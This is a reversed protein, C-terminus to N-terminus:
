MKLLTKIGLLKLSNEIVIGVAKTLSLRYESVKKDKTRQELIDHKNYFTNYKQALDYVYNCILNPSYSIASAEVAEPFHLLSRLINLEEENLSLASLSSDVTKQKETIQLSNATSPKKAKELVSQTRAYTYQLYPGSNGEKSISEKIDFKTDKLPSNKLFSYKVAGIGVSEAIEEKEAESLDKRDEVIKRIEAVVMDVLDVAGIIEGTRSAMKGSKLNVMGFGIHELKGKLEPMVKEIASFIVKFYENQESATTIILKDYPFEEYKLIELCVDKAEYTPTNRSTIFVRDHLGAKSGEYIVAGESESFVKGINNKVLEYGKQHVESEYYYRDFEIDLRKEFQKYYTKSWERTKTLIEQVEPVNNYIDQNLKDIEDKETGGKEYAASGHQYMLQLLKVKGELDEPVTPNEKLFAWLCKAVHPGIDGQYNARRIEYGTEELINSLSSGLIYSFLHGIHPLKHTNPQGFEFSLKKNKNVFLRGYDSGEELVGRLITTLADPKLHFNIFGPGAVDIKEVVELLEKDNNLKNVIEEALQRPNNYYSQKTGSLSPNVIVNGKDEVRGSEQGALGAPPDKVGAFIQMAINSSYEGYEEREPVDLKMVEEGTVKRLSNIIQSKIDMKQNHIRESDHIESAIAEL